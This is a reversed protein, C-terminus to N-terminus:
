LTLKEKDKSVVSMINYFGEIFVSIAQDMQSEDLESLKRIEDM